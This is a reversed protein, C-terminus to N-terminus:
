YKSRITECPCEDCNNHSPVENMINYTTIAPHIPVKLVNSNSGAVTPPNFGTDNVNISKV